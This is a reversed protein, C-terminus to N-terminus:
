FFHSLVGTEVPVFFGARFCTKKFILRLHKRTEVASSRLEECVLGLWLSALFMASYKLEEVTLHALKKFDLMLFAGWKRSTSHKKVVSSNHSSNNQQKM